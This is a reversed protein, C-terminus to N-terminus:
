GEVVPTPSAHSNKAQINPASADQAFVEVNWVVTGTAADLCVARLSQPVPRTVTGPVATTLYVRGGAVVPSSWGLGPIETRWTVNQTPSWETPPNAADAHGQATPGRFQPWDRGEALSLSLPLSLLAALVLRHMPPASRHLR